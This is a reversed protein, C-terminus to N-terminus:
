VIFFARNSKKCYGNYFVLISINSNTLSFNINKIFLVHYWYTQILKSQRKTLIMETEVKLIIKWKIAVNIACYFSYRIQIDLLEIQRLIVNNCSETANRQSVRSCDFKKCKRYLNNKIKIWLDLKGKGKLKTMFENWTRQRKM